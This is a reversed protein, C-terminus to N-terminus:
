KDISIEKLIFESPSKPIDVNDILKTYNLYNKVKYISVIISSLLSPINAISLEFVSITLGYVIWLLSSFTRLLLFSGSIDDAKGRKITNIILPINSSIGLLTALLVIIESLNNM